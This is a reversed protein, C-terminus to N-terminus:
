SSGAGFNFGPFGPGPFGPLGGETGSLGLGGVLSGMERAVAERARDITGSIAAAVLDELIDKSEMAEDDIRVALVEMRGNMDIEVMGGGSAGTVNIEGLRGQLKAMEEQLKGWNKLMDFPNIAM